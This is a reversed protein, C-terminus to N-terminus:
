ESGISIECLSSLKLAVKEREACWARLQEVSENSLEIQRKVSSASTGGYSTRREVVSKIRICEFIDEDFHSSYVQFQQLTLDLLACDDQICQLVLKGAVEHAERFPVGKKALYDAVDTANTFGREAAMRMAETRVTWSSVMMEVTRLSATVTDVVDFLGEKDEQMDKNYALPLGKMTTLLSILAGYVRGTKGRVLEAYDPNKKQPMISSGTSLSDDLEIFGFEGTSWLIIEESFRSLHMMVLSAMAEYELVFDRDSVADISNEYLGDFGLLEATRQRNIPFTTGALAGAGLPLINIRKWLDMCREADRTFMSAYALLHHSFLIPQARQLHTYGPMVVDLNRESNDVLSQILHILKSVTEILADRLFLHFDTAVQDNRSRATHLKGAVPGIAETLHRELNMHIDEDSVSYNLQNQDVLKKLDQLGSVIKSAEGQTIIGQEGLMIAHAISGLIDYPAFRRDFEISAGFSELFSNGHATFRGGWLKQMTFGRIAVLVEESLIGLTAKQRSLM